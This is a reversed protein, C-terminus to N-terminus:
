RHKYVDSKMWYELHIYEMFCGVGSIFHFKGFGLSFNELAM